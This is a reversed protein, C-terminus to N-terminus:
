TRRQLFRQEAADELGRRCRSGGAVSASVNGHATILASERARTLVVYLLAREMLEAERRVAADASQEVRTKLPMLDENMGAIVMRDYELGKVRHMALGQQLQGALASPITPTERLSWPM